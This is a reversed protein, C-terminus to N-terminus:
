NGGDEDGADGDAYTEELHRLASVARQEREPTPDAGGYRVEEFVATLATVDERDMGAAVAADAFEDPTSAAPNEVDLLDTMESWARYVENGLGADEELRDAAAGAAAGVAARREAPPLDPEEEAPEGEDDGTSVFLLVVSGLLALVLLVGVLTTPTSLAEGTAAVGADGGGVGFGTRNTARSGGAIAAESPTRGCSVLLFYIIVFPVLASSVFITSLVKSGTTYYVALFFLAVLGLLALQVLPRTLFEVCISLRMGTQTASTNGGLDVSGGRDSGVGRDDESAGAGFGGSDSTTTASDLTAAAVGLALVALVALLATAATRRDVM